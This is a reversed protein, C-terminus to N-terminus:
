ATTTLYNIHKMAITLKRFCITYTKCFLDYIGARDEKMWISPIICYYFGNYKLVKEFVLHTISTWITTAKLSNGVNNRHKNGPTMKKGNGNFPLNGLVLDFGQYYSSREFDLNHVDDIVVEVSEETPDYNHAM